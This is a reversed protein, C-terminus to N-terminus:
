APAPLTGARPTWASGSLLRGPRRPRVSAGSASFQLVEKFRITEDRGPRAGAFIMAAIQPLRQDPGRQSQDAVLPRAAEGEGVRGPEGADAGGRAVPVEAVALLQEAVNGPTAELV